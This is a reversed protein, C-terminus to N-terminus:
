PWWKRCRFDSSSAIYLDGAMFTISLSNWIVAEWDAGFIFYHFPSASNLMLFLLLTTVEISDIALCKDSDKQVLAHSNLSKIWERPGQLMTPLPLTVLNWHTRPYAGSRLEIIRSGNPCGTSNWMGFASRPVKWSFDLAPEYMPAERSWGPDIWTHLWLVRLIM